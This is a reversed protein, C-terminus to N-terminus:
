PRRSGERLSSFLELYSAIMQEESFRRRIATQAAQKM